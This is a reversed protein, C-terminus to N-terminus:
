GRAFRAAEPDGGGSIRVNARNAALHRLIPWVASPDADLAKAIEVCGRPEKGLASLVRAQLALVEAAAKKGAEVGAQHYANVDVREGYVGVTREFLAILAGLSREDVQELVLTASTRGKALLAERTGQWFGDLFDGATAGPEVEISQEARDRLVRVFTVFF